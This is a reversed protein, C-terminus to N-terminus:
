FAVAQVVQNRNQGPGTATERGLKLDPDDLHPMDPIYLCIVNQQKHVEQSFGVTAGSFHHHSSSGKMNVHDRELPCTLNRLHIKNYEM